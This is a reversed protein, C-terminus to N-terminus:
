QIQALMSKLALSYKTKSIKKQVFYWIGFYKTKSKKKRYKKEVTTVVCFCDAHLEVWFRHGVLVQQPLKPFTMVGCGLVSWLVHRCHEVMAILLTLQRLFRSILEL